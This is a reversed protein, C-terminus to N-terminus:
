RVHHLQPAALHYLLVRTKARHRKPTTRNEEVDFLHPFRTAELLAPFDFGSLILILIEM